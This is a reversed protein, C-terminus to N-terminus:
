ANPEVRGVWDTGTGQRVRVRDIIQGAHHQIHRINYVQLELKNFPLWQFGSPADLDTEPLQEHVARRCVEMYAGIQEKTYPDCPNPLDHPPWPLAGLFQSEARHEEWAVFSKEDRALYLHTYFLAHGAVRWTPNKDAPDDWVEPACADVAQALMALAALYQSELVAPINM